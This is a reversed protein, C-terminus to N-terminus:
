SMQELTVGLHLDEIQMFIIHPKKVIEAKSLGLLKLGCQLIISKHRLTNLASM